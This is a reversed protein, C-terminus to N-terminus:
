YVPIDQGLNRPAIEEKSLNSHTIPNKGKARVSSVTVENLQNVKTTDKVKEQSFSLFSFLSFTFASILRFKQSKSKAKQRKYNFLYEM